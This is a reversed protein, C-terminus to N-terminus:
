REPKSLYANLTNNNLKKYKNEHRPTYLQEMLIMHPLTLCAIGMFLRGWPLPEPQGAQWGMAAVMGVIALMTYPTAQRIFQKLSYDPAQKQFYTIQDLVSSLSHWAAFYLAFGALLPLSYLMGALLALNTVEWGLDRYRIKRTIKAYGIVGLNAGLLIVLLTNQTTASWRPLPKQLIAEIIPWSEGAHSLIPILLVTSGWLLYVSTAGLSSSWSVYHWNSQGFHYASIGVFLLLAWGPSWMWLLGYVCILLMYLGYFQWTKIPLQHQNQLRHFLIHDTAGHPIGLLLVLALAVINLQPYAALPLIVGAIIGILALPVLLRALQPYHQMM